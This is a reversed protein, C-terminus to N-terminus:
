RGAEDRREHEALVQTAARVPRCCIDEFAPSGGHRSHLYALAEHQLRLLDRSADLLEEDNMKRENLCDHRADDSQDYVEKCYSCQMTWRDERDREPPDPTDKLQWAM